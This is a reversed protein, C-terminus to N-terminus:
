EIIRGVYSDMRETTEFAKPTRPGDKHHVGDLEIVHILMLDPKYTNIIYESIACRRGDTTDDGGTGNALAKEILGPTAYQATRKGRPSGKPDSIEPYNYDINAGVTVPWGVSATTLGSKKAISWLTDTKLAEAFWYWEQTQPDTPAEFIRNQIIGHIAPRVGTIMTTHSPYTVTPFVGEVGDAYSGGLKMKVLNPVKLGYKAPEVYYDPILGDISIMIVHADRKQFQSPQNQNALSSSSAFLLVVSLFTVACKNLATKNM